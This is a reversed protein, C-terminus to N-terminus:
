VRIIRARHDERALATSYHCGFIHGKKYYFNEPCWSIPCRKFKLGKPGAEDKEEGEVTQKPAALRCYSFYECVNAEESRPAQVEM